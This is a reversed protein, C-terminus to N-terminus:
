DRILINNLDSRASTVYKKGVAELLYESEGDLTLNITAQEIQRLISM